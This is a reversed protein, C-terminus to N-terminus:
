CVKLTTLIRTASKRKVDHQTIDLDDVNEEGVKMEIQFFLKYSLVIQISLAYETVVCEKALCKIGSLAM